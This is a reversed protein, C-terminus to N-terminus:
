PPCTGTITYDSTTYNWLGNIDLYASDADKGISIGEARVNGPFAIVAAAFFAFCISIL